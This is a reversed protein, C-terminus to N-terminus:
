TEVADESDIAGEQKQKDKEASGKQEEDPQIGCDMEWTIREM